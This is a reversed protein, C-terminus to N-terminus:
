SSCCVSGCRRCAWAKGGFGSLRGILVCNAVAMACTVVLPARRGEYRTLVIHFVALPVYVAVAAAGHRKFLPHAMM